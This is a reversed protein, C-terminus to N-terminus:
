ISKNSRTGKTHIWTGNVEDLEAVHKQRCHTCEYEEYEDKLRATMFDKKCKFCKVKTNIHKGM